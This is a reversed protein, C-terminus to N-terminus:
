RQLKHAHVAFVYLLCKTANKVHPPLINFSARAKKSDHMQSGEGRRVAKWTKGDLSSFSEHRWRHYESLTWPNLWYINYMYVGVYRSKSRETRSYITSYYLQFRVPTTYVQPGSPSLPPNSGFFRCNFLTSRKWDSYTGKIYGSWWLKKM